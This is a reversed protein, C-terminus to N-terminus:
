ARSAAPQYSGVVARSGVMLRNWANIASIVFLLTVVDDDGLVSRAEEVIEDPLHTDGLRTVAECLALAAREEPTYFPAERWAALVHLRQETEGALRADKSHMDLCYGCGNIQSARAKVLESLAPDLGRGHIATELRVMAAILEPAQKQLDFRATDTDTTM